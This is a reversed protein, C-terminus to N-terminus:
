EAGYIKLMRLVRQLAADAIGNNKLAAICRQFAALNAEALQKQQITSLSQLAQEDLAQGAFLRSGAAFLCPVFACIATMLEVDTPKETLGYHADNHADLDIMQFGEAADYFFNSKGFSDVLIDKELVRRLDSVLKDVHQQPIDAIERSRALVYQAAEAESRDSQLYVSDPNERAWVQLKSLIADDYLAKGRARRQIIFGTGDESEQDCCYGLVPMVAVGDRHLELLAQIIEDWYRLDDDRTDVNRLKMQETSLVAYDGILYARRDHGRSSWQMAKAQDILRHAREPEIAFYKEIM